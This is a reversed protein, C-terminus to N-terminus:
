KPKEERDEDGWTLINIAIERIHWLTKEFSALIDLYVPASKPM